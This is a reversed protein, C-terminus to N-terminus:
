FHAFDEGVYTENQSGHGSDKEELHHESFKGIHYFLELFVTVMFLERGFM